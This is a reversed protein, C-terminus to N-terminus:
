SPDYSELGLFTLVGLVISAEKSIGRSRAVKAVAIGVGGHFVAKGSRRRIGTAKAIANGSRTSFTPRGPVPGLAFETADRNFKVLPSERRARRRRGTRYERRMPSITCAGRALDLIFISRPIRGVLRIAQSCRMRRM